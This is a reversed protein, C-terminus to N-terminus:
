SGYLCTSCTGFCKINCGMALALKGDVFAAPFLLHPKSFANPYGVLESLQVKSLHSGVTGTALVIEGLLM